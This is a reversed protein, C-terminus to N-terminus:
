WYFRMGTEVSWSKDSRIGTSVGDAKIPKSKGLSEYDVFVETYPNWSYSFGLGFGDGLGYKAELKPLGTSAWKERAELLIDLQVKGSHGQPTTFGIGVPLYISLRNADFVYSGDDSDINNAYKYNVGLGSFVGGGVPVYVEGLASYNTDSKRSDDDKLRAIQVEFRSGLGPYSQYERVAKEDAYGLILSPLASYEDENSPEIRGWYLSTGVYFGHPVVSMVGPKQILGRDSNSATSETVYNPKYTSFRSPQYELPLPLPSGQRSLDKGELLAYIWPYKSTPSTEVLADKSSQESTAQEKKNEEKYSTQDGSKPAPTIAEVSVSAVEVPKAISMAPKELASRDSIAKNVSAVQSSSEGLSTIEISSLSQAVNPLITNLAITEPASTQPRLSEESQGKHSEPSENREPSGTAVAYAIKPAPTQEIPSSKTLVFEGRCVAQMFVWLTQDPDSQIGRLTKEDTTCVSDIEGALLANSSAASILILIVLGRKSSNKKRM